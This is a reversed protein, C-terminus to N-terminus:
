LFDEDFKLNVKFNMKNKTKDKKTKNQKKLGKMLM